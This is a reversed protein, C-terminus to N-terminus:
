GGIIIGNRDQCETTARGGIIIGTTAFTAIKTLAGVVVGTTTTEECPSKTDKTEARGGIIIGANVTTSAMALFLMMTMTPIYGRLKTM